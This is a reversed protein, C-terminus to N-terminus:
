FNAKVRDLHFDSTIISVRPHDLRSLIIKSKVADEVTNSSLAAELFSYEPVGKKLLYEQAYFAHANAAINFHNGWGGTCLIRKHEDYREVACDLRSKAIESLEGEPSNPSGLVVLVENQNM